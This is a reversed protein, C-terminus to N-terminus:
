TWFWCVAKFLALQHLDPTEMTRIMVSYVGGPKCRILEFLLSTGVVRTEMTWMPYEDLGTRAMSVCPYYLAYTKLSLVHLVGAFEHVDILLCVVPKQVWVFETHHVSLIMQIILDDMM